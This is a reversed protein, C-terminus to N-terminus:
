LQFFRARLHKQTVYLRTIVITIGQEKLAKTLEDTLKATDANTVEPAAPGLSPRLQPGTAM